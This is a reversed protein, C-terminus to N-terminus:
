TAAGAVTAAVGHADFEALWEGILRRVVEDEALAVPFVARLGLLDARNARIEDALPDDLPLPSGDDAYGRCFRMWAAVMMAAWRPEAGASRRDAITNLLRQPLKQSGDRAIQVTRHEIGPNAFRELVSRGFAGVSIGDPPTLSPAVDAILFRSMVDHLGPMELAASVTPCGALAGLYAIGSHVGNLARLKLREWPGVDATFSAGAREWAPRGGPFDDEIVWQSYPEAHVAALDRVGLAREAAAMTAPTTAPVIRDAMTGPFTVHTGIWDHVVRRDAAPLHHLAQHVLDHTRSGNSPLTDCSVVAIPGADARCRAALGRVLLGPVTQPPRETILDAALDDAVILRGDVPDLRYGKETITLTIVRVGPDAIRALVADPDAIARHVESFAGIVRTDRGHASVSTVSFLRDQAELAAVVDASRPAVAAIGWDGGAAAMADETYVAQHARHFAGLGIHVIGTRPSDGTRSLLAM